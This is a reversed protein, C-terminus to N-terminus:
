TLAQKSRVDQWACSSGEILSFGTDQSLGSVPSFTHSHLSSGLCAARHATHGTWHVTGSGHQM